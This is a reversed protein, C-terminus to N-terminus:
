FGAQDLFCEFDSGSDFGEVSGAVLVKAEEFVAEFDLYVEAGVCDMEAARFSTYEAGGVAMARASANRAQAADLGPALPLGQDRGVALAARVRNVLATKRRAAPLRRPEFAAAFLSVVLPEIM